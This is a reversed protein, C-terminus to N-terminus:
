IRYAISKCDIEIGWQDPHTAGQHVKISSSLMSFSHVVVGHLFKIQAMFCARVAERCRNMDCRGGGPKQIQGTWTFIGLVDGMQVSTGPETLLSM